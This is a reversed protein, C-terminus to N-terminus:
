DKDEKEEDDLVTRQYGGWGHNGGCTKFCFEYPECMNDCRGCDPMEDDATFIYM